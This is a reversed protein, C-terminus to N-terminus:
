PRTGVCGPSSKGPPEAVDGVLRNYWDEVDDYGNCNVDGTADSASPDMGHASEYRDPVGDGDSDPPAVGAELEPWPGAEDKLSGGGTRVENVLRKDVADRVLSAGATALVDDYAAAAPERSVIPSAFASSMPAIADQDVRAPRDGDPSWRLNGVGFWQHTEGTSGVHTGFEPRDGVSDPGPKYYNGTWNVQPTGNSSSVLTVADSSGGFYNYIVNSRVDAVSVGSIQPNRDANSVFLNHHISVNHADTGGALMGMSHEGDPHGADRLGEAIVAYSVTVDRAYDYTNVNEDIAWSFSSHDVVIDHVEEGYANLGDHSDDADGGSGPRFRLYRIIVDHTKISMTGHDTGSEPDMRLTIGGGPATQGAITLYPEEISLRDRLLITGGTRFIVQRPGSAEICARLSGTGSDALNTVQCVQGGRGGPTGTGFGEAGPFV